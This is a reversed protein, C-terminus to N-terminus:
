GHIVTRPTSGPPRTLDPTGGRVGPNSPAPPADAIAEGRMVGVRDGSLAQPACRDPTTASGGPTRSRKVAEIGRRMDASIWAFYREGIRYLVRALLTLDVLVVLTTM